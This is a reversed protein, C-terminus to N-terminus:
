DDRRDSRHGQNRGAPPNELWGRAVFWDFIKGTKNVDVRCLRQAERKKFTGFQYRASLLHQKISLYM